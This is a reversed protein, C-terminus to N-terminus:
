RIEQVAYWAEYLPHSEDYASIWFLVRPIGGSGLAISGVFNAGIYAPLADIGEPHRLKVPDFSGSGNNSYLFTGNDYSLLHVTGDADVAMSLPAGVPVIEPESWGSDRRLAYYTQHTDTAPFNRSFVVHAHDEGDLGLAIPQDDRMTAPVEEVVFPGTPTEATAYRLPQVAGESYYPCDAGVIIRALGDSGVALQPASGEAVVSAVSWDVGTNTTYRVGLPYAPQEDACRDDSYDAEQWAFHIVGDRVAFSAGQNDEALRNEQWDGSANTFYDTRPLTPYGFEDPIGKTRWVAILLADQDMALLPLDFHVGEQDGPVGIAVAEESATEGDISLHYVSGDRAGAAHALGDAAIVLSPHWYSYGTSYEYASLDVLRWDSAGPSSTAPVTPTASAPPPQQTPTALPTTTPPTSTDVGPSSEPTTVAATPSPSTLPASPAPTTFTSSCGTILLLAIGQHLKAKHKSM